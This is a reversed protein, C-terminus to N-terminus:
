PSHHQQIEKLMDHLIDLTSNVKDVRKELVNLRNQLSYVACETDYVRQKVLPM